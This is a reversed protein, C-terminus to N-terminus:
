TRVGIKLSATLGSKAKSMRLWQARGLMIGIVLWILCQSSNPTLRDNTLGTLAMSILALQAGFFLGRYQPDPDIKSLQKFGRWIYAYFALVFLTGIAGIDLMLDLYANHSLGVSFIRMKRHAESWLISQIGNGFVINNFMDPLLPIWLYKVRGASVDEGEAGPAGTGYSLRQMLADQFFFLGVLVLIFLLIKLKITGRFTFIVTCIALPLLAGRSFTLITAVFTLAIVIWISSYTKKIQSGHWMGLLLAYGTTLISAFTNPHFGTAALDMNKDRSHVALELLSKGSVVAIGIIALDICLVLVVIAKELSPVTHGTAYVAAILSSLLLLFMGPLLFTRFYVWSQRYDTEPTILWRPIEASHMTGHIGAIVFICMYLWIWKGGLFGSGATGPKIVLRSLHMALCIGISAYVVYSFRTFDYFLVFIRSMWILTAWVTVAVAIRFNFSM